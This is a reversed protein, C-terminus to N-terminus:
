GDKQPEISTLHAKPDHPHCPCVNWQIASQIVCPKRACDLCVMMQGTRPHKEEPEDDGVSFPGAAGVIGNILGGIRRRMPGAPDFREDDQVSQEIVQFSLVKTKPSVIAKCVDCSYTTTIM